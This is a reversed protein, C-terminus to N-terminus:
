PQFIMLIVFYRRITENTLITLNQNICANGLLVEDLEDELNCNREREAELEPDFNFGSVPFKQDAM